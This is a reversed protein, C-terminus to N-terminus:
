LLHWDVEGGGGGARKERGGKTWEAARLENNLFLSFLTLINLSASRRQRGTQGSSQQVADMREEQETVTEEGPLGGTVSHFTSEGDTHSHLEPDPQSTFRHCKRNYWHPFNIAASNQAINNADRTDNHGGKAQSTKRCLTLKNNNAIIFSLKFLM